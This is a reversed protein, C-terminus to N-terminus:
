ASTPPGDLWRTLFEAGWAVGFGTVDTAVAGLGGGCRASSLDVHVWPLEGTFRKLFRAALIHDAEGAMTCQKVDAVKSELGSEGEEYDADFPFACVREGSAKGAAVAHAALAEDSAFVGAYRNGLATHMSGTLTAFDVVLEPKAKGGQRSALTLTDALVLRGEADTHVIEISTGDLATVIDNQKYAAPSLHNHAIALWADVAIPQKTESLLQLLALAVASGNMDEHMGQMYRAPKLNHGGTDFCIGKGVLALRRKANKPRWSLRVIAADEHNSGQAVACFAGAGMKLLRRYDYEEIRWGQARAMARLRKRYAAPTLENPPLTTLERALSNADALALTPALGAASVGDAHVALKSLPRAAKKKRAPLPAGNICAAYVADRAAEAGAGLDVVALERPTEDLLAMIGKRLLTLREFRPKAADIMVCAARGGEPLDLAQPGKQLDKAAVDRRALVARWLQAAPLADPLADGAPLLFLAHSYKALAAPQAAGRCKIQPLTMIAPLPPLGPLNFHRVM